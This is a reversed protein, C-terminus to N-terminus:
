NSWAFIMKYTIVEAARIPDTQGPRIPPEQRLSMVHQILQPMAAKAVWTHPFTVSEREGPDKYLNYIKPM